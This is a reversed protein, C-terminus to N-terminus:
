IYKNHTRQSVCSILTNHTRACWRGVRLARKASGVNVNTQTTIAISLCILRNVICERQTHTRRRQENWQIAICQDIHTRSKLVTHNIHKNRVSILNVTFVFRDRENRWFFRWVIQYRRTSTPKKNKKERSVFASENANFLFRQNM